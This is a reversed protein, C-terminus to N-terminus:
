MTPTLPISLRFISEGYVPTLPLNQAMIWERRAYPNLTVYKVQLKLSNGIYIHPNLTVDKIPLNFGNGINTPTLSIM